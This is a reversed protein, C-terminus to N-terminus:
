GSKVGEVLRQLLFVGLGLTGVALAALVAVAITPDYIM